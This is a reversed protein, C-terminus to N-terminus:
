RADGIPLRERVLFQLRNTGARRAYRMDDAMSRMLLIGRGGEAGGASRGPLAAACPDFPAGEDEICMELTDGQADLHLRVRCTPPPHEARLFINSVAEELLLGAVFRIRAGCRRADLFAELHGWGRRLPADDACLEFACPGADM